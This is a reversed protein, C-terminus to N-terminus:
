LMVLGVGLAFGYLAGNATAIVDTPFPTLTLVIHIPVTALPASVGFSARIAEPDGISATWRVLVTGLVLAGAITYLAPSTAARLLWSRQLPM